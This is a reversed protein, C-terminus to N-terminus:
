ASANCVCAVVVNLIVHHLVDLCDASRGCVCLSVSLESAHIEFSAMNQHHHAEGWSEVMVDFTSDGQM